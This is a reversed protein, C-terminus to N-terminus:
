KKFDEKATSGPVFEPRKDSEPVLTPRGQSRAILHELLKNFEAKGVIAEIKTFPLPKREYFTERPFGNAELTEFVRELDTFTRSTRGEIVKWGSIKKGSLAASLTYDEIEEVWKKLNKAFGLVEGVEDDSLTPAGSKAIAAPRAFEYKALELNDEARKRCTYRLKCFRCHDGSKFEGDGIYALQATGKISRGWEALEKVDTEWCSFSNVRPQVIHLFVNSIPYFLRYAEMAGLAYLKLQPNGEASVPVGKGYKFDIIHLQEGHVIICDATGFGEPVYNSFNVKQEVAIHAKSPFSLATKKIYDLYENTFGDMESQYLENKKLRNLKATITRKPTAEIYSRLKVECMEHALTGEKAFESETDPFNECLRASPPCNLWRVAASASLLAHTGPM